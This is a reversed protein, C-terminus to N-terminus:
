IMRPSELGGSSRSSSRRLGGRPHFSVTSRPHKQSDTIETQRVVRNGQKVLVAYSIRAESKVQIDVADVRDDVSFLHYNANYTLTRGRSHTIPDGRHVLGQAFPISIVPGFPDLHKNGCCLVDGLCEPYPHAKWAAGKDKVPGMELDKLLNAYSGNRRSNISALVVGTTRAIEEVAAVVASLAGRGEPRLGKLSRLYAVFHEAITRPLMIEAIAAGITSRTGEM